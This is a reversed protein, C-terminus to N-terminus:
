TLHSLTTCVAGLNLLHNKSVGCLFVLIGVLQLLLGLGLNIANLLECALKKIVKEADRLCNQTSKGDSQALRLVEKDLNLGFDLADQVFTELM